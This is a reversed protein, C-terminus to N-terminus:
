HWLGSIRWRPPTEVPRGVPFGDDHGWEYLPREQHIRPGPPTFGRPERDPQLAMLRAIREETPPHTRLLSPEPVRRGPMLIREFLGGQVREIKRLARALGAPDGTLAVANLDADYERSRSLALQALASLSPAFVLLLLAPWNVTVDYFVILPLNVLVLIQGVLSLISTARSFLDALGMVWLDNNGIHSMEHALVGALERGDLGRLLGDTVALAAAQPSGVAFANLMPSPIYHLGPTAPLGAREALHAVLGGLGPAQRPHIPTAGYLRMVMRPSIAPNFIVTMATVVLLMAIGAPGWLLWGLLALFAAMVALLILSHLRNRWVHRRWRLSDIGGGM